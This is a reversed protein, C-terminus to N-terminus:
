VQQCHRIDSYIVTSESYKMPAARGSSSRPAASVAAYIVADGRQNGELSVDSSRSETPSKKNKCLTWGLLLTLLGFTITSLTLAIVTPSLNDSKILAADRQVNIWTGNGFLMQGCSTVVCYYTGTDDSSQSRMVFNYECTTEGSESRQCSDNRNESSHITEPASHDSNKLWMVGTHEAACRNNHVSCSLTVSDGPQVSKSDPQQIVSDSIMKAGKIMLYTGSGFQIDHLIMVGCYYMGADEWTTTYISLHSSSSNSHVSYHESQEKFTVLNYLMDTSAVPQLRRGTTLKYWVRVRATSDIHCKITVADGLKVAQFSKPQSIDNLDAECVCWLLSLNVLCVVMKEGQLEM